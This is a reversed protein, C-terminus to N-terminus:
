QLGCLQLAWCSRLPGVSLPKSFGQSSIFGRYRGSVQGSHRSPSADSCGEM